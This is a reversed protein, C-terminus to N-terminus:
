RLLTEPWENDHIYGETPISPKYQQHCSNCSDVLMNGARALGQQDEARASSLAMLAGQNMLNVYERWSRQTIWMADNVGTGGMSMASRSSILQIAHYEVEQWDIETESQEPSAADWIFHAAHNIQAVMIENISIDPTFPINVRAVTAEQRGLGSCGAILVSMAFFFVLKKPRSALGQMLTVVLRM